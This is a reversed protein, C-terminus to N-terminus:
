SHLAPVPLAYKFCRQSLSKHPSRVQVQQRQHVTTALARRLGELKNNAKSENQLAELEVFKAKALDLYEKVKAQLRALKDDRETFDPRAPRKGFQKMKQPRKSHEGQDLSAADAMASSNRLAALARSTRLLCFVHLKSVVVCVVHSSCPLCTPTCVPRTRDCSPPSCYGRSATRRALGPQVGAGGAVKTLM